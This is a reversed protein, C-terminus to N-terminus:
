GVCGDRCRVMAGIAEEASRVISAFGGAMRVACIFAFQEETARGTASKVELAFFRGGCLGILDSGGKGGVGYRVFRGGHKTAGIQNRWVLVDPELTLARVISRLITAENTLVAVM